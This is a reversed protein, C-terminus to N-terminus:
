LSTTGWGLLRSLTQDWQELEKSQLSQTAVPASQPQLAYYIWTLVAFCYSPGCITLVAVLLRGNNLGVLIFESTVILAYIGFGLLIGFGFNKWRLHLYKMLLLVSLALGLQMISLGRNAEFLLRGILPAASGTPDSVVLAISVPLLMGAWCFDCSEIVSSDHPIPCLVKLLNRGPNCFLLTNGPRKRDM